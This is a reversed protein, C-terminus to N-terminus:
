LTSEQPSGSEKQVAVRSDMSVQRYVLYTEMALLVLYFLIVWAKFEWFRLGPLVMNVMLIGILVFLMRVTSGGIVILIAQQDSRTVLSAMLSVLIGPVVCLAAAITLGQLSDVDGALYAPYLLVLWLMLAVGAVAFAQKFPNLTHTAQKQM